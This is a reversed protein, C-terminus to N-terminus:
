EITITIFDGDFSEFWFDWNQESCVIEVLELNKEVDDIRSKIGTETEYSNNVIIEKMQEVTM